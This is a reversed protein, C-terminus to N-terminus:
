KGTHLLQRIFKIYEDKAWDRGGIAQYKVEGQPNILFTTPLGRPKWQETVLGDSDMLSNLEVDIASLFTFITDEDEATNVMVIAFPQDKMADALKQISPMEKRCPGCWSAWFHLFVWKGRTQDLRFIEGDIDPLSFDTARGIDYARIGFPPRLDATKLDAAKLDAAYSGAPLCGASILVLLLFITSRNIM